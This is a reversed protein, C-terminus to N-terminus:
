MCRHCSGHQEPTELRLEIDYAFDNEDDEGRLTHQIHELAREYTCWSFTISEIQRHHEAGLGGKIVAYEAAGDECTADNLFLYGPHGRVSCGNCLVWVQESLQRALVEASEVEHVKWVRNSHMM